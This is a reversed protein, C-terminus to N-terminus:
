WRGTRAPCRAGRMAMFAVAIGADVVPRRRRGASWRAPESCRQCSGARLVRSGAARRRVHLELRRQARSRAGSGCGPSRRGPPRRHLYIEAGELEADSPRSAGDVIGAPAASARRLRGRAHARGLRRDHGAGGGATACTDVTYTDAAHAPATSVALVALVVVLLRRMSRLRLRTGKGAHGDLVLVRRGVQGDRRDHAGIIRAPERVRADLDLRQVRARVQGLVQIEALGPLERVRPAHVRVHVALPRPRHALVRPVRRRLLGVLAVLVQELVAGGPRLM